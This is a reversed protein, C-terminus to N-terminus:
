QSVDTVSGHPMTSRSPPPKASASLTAFLPRLQQSPLWSVNRLLQGDSSTKSMMQMNMVNAVSYTALHSVWGHKPPRAGQM